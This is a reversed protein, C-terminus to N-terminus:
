EGVIAYAWFFTLRLDMVSIEAHKAHAQRKSLWCVMCLSITAASMRSCYLPTLHSLLIKCFTKQSDNKKLWATAQTSIVRN